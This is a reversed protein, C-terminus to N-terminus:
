VHARGIEAATDLALGAHREIPGHCKVCHVDFLPQVKASWVAAPDAAACARSAALVVFLIVPLHRSRPAGRPKARRRAAPKAPVRPASKTPRKVAVSKRGKAAPRKVNKAAALSRNEAIRLTVMRKVIANALPRDPAFRVTGLDSSCM